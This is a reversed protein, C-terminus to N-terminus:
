WERLEKRLKDKERKESPRRHAETPRGKGYEHGREKTINRPDFKVTGLSEENKM